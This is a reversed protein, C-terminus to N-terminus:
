LEIKRIRKKPNSKLTKVEESLLKTHDCPSLMLDFEFSRKAINVGSDMYSNTNGVFRTSVEYPVLKSAAKAIRTMMDDTTINSWAEHMVRMKLRAILCNKPTMEFEEIEFEELVVGEISQRGLGRSIAILANQPCDIALKERERAHADGIAFALNAPDVKGLSKVANRISDGAEKASLGMSTLAMMLADADERDDRASM